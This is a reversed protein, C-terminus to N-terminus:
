YCIRGVLMDEVKLTGIKSPKLGGIRAMNSTSIALPTCDQLYCCFRLNQLSPSSGEIWCKPIMARTALFLNNSSLDAELKSISRMEQNIKIRNIRSNLLNLYTTNFNSKLQFQDLKIEVATLQNSFIGTLKCHVSQSGSLM